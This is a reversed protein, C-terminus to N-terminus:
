LNISDSNFDGCAFLLMDAEYLFVIKAYSMQKQSAFICMMEKQPM